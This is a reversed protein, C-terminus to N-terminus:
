YKICIESINNNKLLALLLHETGVYPHHCNLMEQEAIELIRCVSKNFCKDM